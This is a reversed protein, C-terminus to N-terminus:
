EVRCTLEGGSVGLVVGRRRRGGGGGRGGEMGIGDGVAEGDGGGRMRVLM